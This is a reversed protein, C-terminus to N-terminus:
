VRAIFTLTHIGGSLGARSLHPDHSIKWVGDKLEGLVTHDWQPVRPSKGSLLARTGDHLPQINCKIDIEIAALGRQSLWTQLNHWAVNPSGNRRIEDGYFDPVEEYALGLINALSCRFCDSDTRQDIMEVREPWGDYETAPVGGRRQTSENWRGAPPCPIKFTNDM